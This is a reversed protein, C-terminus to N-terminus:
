MSSVNYRLGVTYLEKFGGPDTSTDTSMKVESFFGKIGSMQDGFQIEGPM